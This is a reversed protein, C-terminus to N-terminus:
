TKRDFNDGTFRLKKHGFVKTEIMMATTMMTITIQICNDNTDIDNDHADNDNDCRGGGATVCYANTETMLVPMITRTMMTTMMMMMTMMM